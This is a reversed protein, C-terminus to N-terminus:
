GIRATRIDPIRFNRPSLVMEQSVDRWSLRSAPANVMLRPNLLAADYEILFM